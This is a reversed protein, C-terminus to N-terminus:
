QDEVVGKTMMAIQAAKIRNTVFIHVLVAGVIGILLGIGLGILAKDTSSDLLFFGAACLGCVGLVVALDVLFMVLSFKLTKKYVQSNTM